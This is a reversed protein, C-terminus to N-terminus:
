HTGTQAHALQKAKEPEPPVTARYFPYYVMSSFVSHIKVINTTLVNTLHLTSNIEFVVIKGNAHQSSFFSGMCDRHWITYFM